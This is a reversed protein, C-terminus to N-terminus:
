SRDCIRGLLVVDGREESERRTVQQRQIGEIEFSAKRFARISGLNDSICGATLKECFNSDFAWDSVLAIAESALGLNWCSKDGILIGLPSSRNLASRPGLKVNGIHRMSDALFIGFLEISPDTNCEVVFRKLDSLGQPLVKLELFKTVDPDGFWDLYRQSVDSALLPKLVVSQGTLAVM